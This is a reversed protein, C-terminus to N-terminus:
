EEEGGCVMAEAEDLSMLHGLITMAIQRHYEDSGAGCTKAYDIHSQAEELTLDYETWDGANAPDDHQEYFREPVAHGSCICNENYIYITKTANM